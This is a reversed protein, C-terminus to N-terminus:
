AATNSVATVSAAPHANSRADQLPRAERYRAERRPFRRPREVGVGKSADLVEDIVSHSVGSSRVSHVQNASLHSVRPAGHNLAGNKAVELYTHEAQQRNVSVYIHITLSQCIVAFHDSDHLDM